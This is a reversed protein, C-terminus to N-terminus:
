KGSRASLSDTVADIEEVTPAATRRPLPRLRRNWEGAEVSALARRLWLFREFAFGESSGGVAQAALRAIGAQQKPTLGTHVLRGIEVIVERHRCLLHGRVHASTLAYGAAKAAATADGAHELLAAAFRRRRTRRSLRVALPGVVAM